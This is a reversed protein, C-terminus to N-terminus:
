MAMKRTFEILVRIRNVHDGERMTGPHVAPNLWMPICFTFWAFVWIFGILKFAKSQKYGLRSAIAIVADEFTICVAQLVFFQISQSKSFNQHLIYDGAAHILGSIFFSM